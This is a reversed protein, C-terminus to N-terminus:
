AVEEEMNRIKKKSIVYKANHLLIVQKDGYEKLIEPRNFNLNMGWAAAIFAFNVQNQEYPKFRIDASYARLAEIFDSNKRKDYKRLNKYDASNQRLRRYAWITHINQKM